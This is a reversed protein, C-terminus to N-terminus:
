SEVLLEFTFLGDEVACARTSKGSGSLGTLWIVVSRHGNLRQRADRTVLAQQLTVNTSRNM